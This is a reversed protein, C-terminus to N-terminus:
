AVRRLTRAGKALELARRAAQRGSAWAVESLLGPAAVRDGALLVGDGRDVAPRDRWTTGPFDLAGSQADMVQRRRWTTRERWGDYASDLLTELRAAAADPTEGPRIPMHAQVLDEGVPALTRDAATYREIWGSEDMDSVLFPDGRRSTLGVDLCVTRGSPWTLRDDDLLRRADGLDTAVIAPRDPLRTVREGLHLDVGLAVARTVLADVLVGWGGVVYRAAPPPSFLTRITRPWVFAASLEGPDHHYTYVGAAGSLLAATREGAHREAWTRFSEDAPAERGRLRLVPALMPLPPTRHVAGDYRMRIGTLPTTRIPPLIRQQELWAFMPGDGYLVHPGLNARYPGASTRARGGPAGHAEILVVPAGAEACTIAATLGAIGAGVITITEM